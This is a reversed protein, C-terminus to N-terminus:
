MKLEKKVDALLDTGNAVIVGSGETSDLVYEFGKATAVKKIAMQAKEMIPKLLDIEKQGLEAQATQQFKQIRGGMEQMEKSRTENIADGVTASEQEYKAIKTQYEQVMSKYTDDYTKQIKEIQAQATKMEPMTTMLEKVNIHATKQAVVQTSIFLVCAIAFNRLHKM